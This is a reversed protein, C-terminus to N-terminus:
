GGVAGRGEGRAHAALALCAVLTAYKEDQTWPPGVARGLETLTPQLKDPSVGFESAARALLEKEKIRMVAVGSEECSRAIINRFLEGEATHILAHSALTAALTTLPRGSGVPIGCAVVQHGRAALERLGGNVSEHALCQSSETCRALLKEAEPLKLREAAHYPQKSGALKPDAIEIRRRELITLSPFAGTVAVMAAWGSHVRFGLAAATM